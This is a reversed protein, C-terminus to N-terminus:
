VEYCKTNALVVTTTQVIICELKSLYVLLITLCPMQYLFAVKLVIVKKNLCRSLKLTIVAECASPEFGVM